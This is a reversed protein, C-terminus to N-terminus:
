KSKVIKAFSLINKTAFVEKCTFLIMEFAQMFYALNRRLANQSFDPEVGHEKPPYILTGKVKLSSTAGLQNLLSITRRM